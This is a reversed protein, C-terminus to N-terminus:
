FQTVDTLLVSAAAHTTTGPDTFLYPWDMGQVPHMSGTRDTTLKLENYIKQRNFLAHEPVPTGFAGYIVGLYGTFLVSSATYNPHVMGHNEAMYDPLTTFTEGTWQSVTKGNAFM